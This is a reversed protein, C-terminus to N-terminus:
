CALMRRFAEVVTQLRKRIPNDAIRPARVKMMEDNKENVESTM